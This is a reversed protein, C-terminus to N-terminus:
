QSTRTCTVVTTCKHTCCEPCTWFVASCLVRWWGGTRLRDVQEEVLGDAQSNTKVYISWSIAESCPQQCDECYCGVSFDCNCWEACRSHGNEEVGQVIANSFYGFYESILGCAWQWNRPKEMKRNLNQICFVFSYNMDWNDTKWESGLAVEIKFDDKWIWIWIWRKETEM